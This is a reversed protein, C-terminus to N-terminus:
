KTSFVGGGSDSGRSSVFDSSQSSPDSISLLLQRRPGRLGLNASDVLNFSHTNSREAM